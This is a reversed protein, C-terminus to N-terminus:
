WWNRQITVVERVQERLNPALEHRSQIKENLRYASAFVLGMYPQLIRFIVVNGLSQLRTARPFKVGLGECIRAHVERNM